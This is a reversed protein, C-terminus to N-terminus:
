PYLFIRIVLDIIEDSGNGVFINKPHINYIDSITQKIKNHSPDPYRNYGNNYPNENADLFIGTEGSYEKRASSYPEISLIHPQILKKINM